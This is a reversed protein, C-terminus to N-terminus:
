RNKGRPSAALKKGWAQLNDRAEALKKRTADTRQDWSNAETLLAKGRPAANEDDVAGIVFPPLGAPLGNRRRFTVVIGAEKGRAYAMVGVVEPKKGLLAEAVAYPTADFALEPNVEPLTPLARPRPEAITPAPKEKREKGTKLSWAHGMLGCTVFEGGSWHERQAKRGCAYPTEGKGTGNLSRLVTCPCTPFQSKALRAEWDRKAVQAERFRQEKWAAERELERVSWGRNEIGAVLSNVIKPEASALIEAHSASLKGSEVQKIVKEPLGLLKLRNSVYAPSKGTRRAIDAQSLGGDVALRYARAEDLESLGERQVNAVLQLEIIEQDNAEWIRVPVTKLGAEKAALARRHGDVIMLREGRRVVTLPSLVGQEAISRGLEELGEKSPERINTGPDLSSIKAELLEENGKPPPASEAVVEAAM